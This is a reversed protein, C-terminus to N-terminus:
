LSLISASVGLVQGAFSKYPGRVLGNWQGRIRRRIKLPGKFYHISTSKYLKRLNNQSFPWSTAPLTKSGSLLSKLEFGQEMMFTLPHSQALAQM